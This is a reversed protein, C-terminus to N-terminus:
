DGEIPDHGLEHLLTKLVSAFSLNPNFLYITRQSAQDGQTLFSRLSQQRELVLKVPSQWLGKKKRLEM